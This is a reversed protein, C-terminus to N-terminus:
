YEEGVVIKDGSDDVEFLHPHRIYRGNEERHSHISMLLEGEFNRFMMGHGFNPPTIPEMEHAWPGDLTGSKSYAVGQTYVGMAWSRKLVIGDLYVYPHNGKIERNRWQEIQCYVKKNLESITSPSVKTGWLAQTIDEVRRVSVGALYMEILSEEVSSERRKYREIIATEFTTKRLKPIKLNVEGAKTHLKRDYFGARTDKRAESREYRAANCLQDAEADLMANLTDEVTTRVLDGLEHKVRAEDIKIVNNLNKGSGTSQELQKM